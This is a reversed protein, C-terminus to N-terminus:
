GRARMYEWRSEYAVLCHNWSKDATVWAITQGRVSMCGWRSEHARLSNWGTDVRERERKVEFDRASEDVRMREWLSTEVKTRERDRKVESKWTSEDARMEWASGTFLQVRTREWERKAEFEWASESWSDYARLSDSSEEVRERKAEFKWASEDVRMREWWFEYARLSNSSEYATASMQGLKLTISEM